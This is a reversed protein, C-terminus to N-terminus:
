WRFALTTSIVHDVEDQSIDSFLPLRVLRDSITETTPCGLPTSAHSKAAPSSHLPAYHFPTTVGRVQMFDIFMTRMELRPFLL